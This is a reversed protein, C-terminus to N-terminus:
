GPVVLGAAVDGLLCLQLQPVLMPLLLQSGELQESFDKDTVTEHYRLLHALQDAAKMCGRQVIQQLEPAGALAAFGHQGAALWAAERLQLLLLLALVPPCFCRRLNDATRL